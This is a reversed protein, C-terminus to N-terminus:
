NKFKEAGPNLKDKQTLQDDLYIPLLEKTSSDKKYVNITFQSSLNQSSNKVKVYLNKNAKKAPITCRSVNTKSM